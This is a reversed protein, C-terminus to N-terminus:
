LVEGPPEPDAEVVLQRKIAASRESLDAPQIAARIEADHGCEGAIAVAIQPRGNGSGLALQHANAVERHLLFKRHLLNWVRPDQSRIGIAADPQTQEVALETMVPVAGELAERQVVGVIRDRTQHDVGVSRYPRGAGASECTPLLADDSRQRHFVAQRAVLDDADGAITVLREPEVGFAAQ